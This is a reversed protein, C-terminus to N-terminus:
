VKANTSVPSSELFGWFAGFNEFDIQVTVNVNVLSSSAQTLHVSNFLILQVLIM